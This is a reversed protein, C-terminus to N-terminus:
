VATGVVTCPTAATGRTDLMLHLTVQTVANGNTVMLIATQRSFTLDAAEFTPLKRASLEVAAADIGVPDTTTTMTYPTTIAHGNVLTGAPGTFYGYMFHRPGEFEEVKTCSLHLTAGGAVAVASDGVPRTVTFRAPLAACTVAGSAAVASIAGGACTGSVRRQLSVSDVGDLLDANLRPVKTSNSVTLPPTGAKSTLGLATGATNTLGTKTTASNSRGLVFTGGTAATAVGTGGVLAIAVAIGAVPNAAARAFSRVSM